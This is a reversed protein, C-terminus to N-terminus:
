CKMINEVSSRSSASGYTNAGCMDALLLMFPSPKRKTQRINHPAPCSLEVNMEKQLHKLIHRYLVFPASNQVRTAPPFPTVGGNTLAITLTLTRETHTGM